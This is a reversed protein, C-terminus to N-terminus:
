AARKANYIYYDGGKQGNKHRFAIQETIRQLWQIGDLVIRRGAKGPGFQPALEATLQRSTYHGDPQRKIADLAPEAAAIAKAIRKFDLMNKQPM